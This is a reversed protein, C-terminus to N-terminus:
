FKFEKAKLSLQVSPFHIIKRSTHSLYSMKNKQLPKNNKVWSKDQAAQLEFLGFWHQKVKSNCWFVNRMVDYSLVNRM